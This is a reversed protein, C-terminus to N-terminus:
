PKLINFKFYDLDSLDMIMVIAWLCLLTGHIDSQHSKNAIKVDYYHTQNQNKFYSFGGDLQNYHSKIMLLINEFFKLIEKRKYNSQKSCRYLVYVVDVMDCGRNSVTSNLCFDIIKEPYHIKADLWDLGTLIKMAGNILEYNSTVTGKYYLGNESNVTSESFKLISKKSNEFKSNELQTKSFVCIASFQGGSSWPYNWNLSNLYNNIENENKPFKKYTIKNPKDIEYLTSISQKTEARIYNELKLNNSKYNTGITLNSIYKVPYLLGTLLNDSRFSSLYGKDIFTNEQELDEKTQFSNIYEAWNDIESESLKDIYDILKFIKLSYCSFGLNLKEGNKTLLKQVPFFSFDSDEKKLNNVYELVSSDLNKLWSM